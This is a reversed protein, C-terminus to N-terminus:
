QVIATPNAYGDSRPSALGAELSSTAGGRTANTTGTVSELRLCADPPRPDGPRRDWEDEDSGSRRVRPSSCRAVPVDRHRDSPSPMTSAVSERTAVSPRPATRDAGSGSSRGSRLGGVPPRTVLRDFPRSLAYSRPRVRSDASPTRTDRVDVPGVQGAIPRSVRTSIPLRDSGSYRHGRVIGFGRVSAAFPFRNNAPGTDFRVHDRGRSISFQNRGFRAM